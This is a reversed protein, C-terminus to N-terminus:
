HLCIWLRAQELWQADCVRKLKCRLISHANM